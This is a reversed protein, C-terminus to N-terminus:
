VNCRAHASVTENQTVPSTNHLIVSILSLQQAGMVQGVLFTGKTSLSSETKTKTLAIKYKKRFANGLKVVIMRLM